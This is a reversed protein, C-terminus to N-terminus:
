APPGGADVRGAGTAGVELAQPEGEHLSAFLMDILTSADELAVPTSATCVRGTWHSVVLVASDPHWTVRLYQDNGRLDALFVRQAPKGAVEWTHVEPRRRM